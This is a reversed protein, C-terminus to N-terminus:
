SKTAETRRIVFEGSREPRSSSLDGVWSGSAPGSAGAGTEGPGVRGSSVETRATAGPLSIVASHFRAKGTAETCSASALCFCSSAWSGLRWSSALPPGDLCSLALARSLQTSSAAAREGSCDLESSGRRLGPLGVTRRSGREGGLFFDRERGLGREMLSPLGLFRAGALCLFDLSRLPLAERLFRRREEDEDGSLSRRRESGGGEAPHWHSCAMAQRLIESEATELSTASGRRIKESEGGGGKARPM